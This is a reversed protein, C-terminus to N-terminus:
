RIARQALGAKATSRLESATRVNAAADLEEKVILAARRNVAASWHHRDYAFLPVQDPPRLLQTIDKGGARRAFELWWADGMPSPERLHHAMVHFRAGRRVVAERMATLCALVLDTGATVDDPLATLYEARKSNVLWYFYSVDMLRDSWGLRYVPRDLRGDIIQFKPKFRALYHRDTQVDLFDNFSVFALVDSISLAPNAELYAELSLLEQDVGYGLVGLNVVNVDMVHALIWPFTDPDDVAAGQVYSDGLVIVTPRNDRARETRLRTLRHGAEDTSMTYRGGEGGRILNDLNPLHVWGTRSDSVVLPVRHTAAAIIRVAIEGLVLGVATGALILLLRGALQRRRWADLM